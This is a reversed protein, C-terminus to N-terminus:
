TNYVTAVREERVDAPWSLRYSFAYTRDKALPALPQWYAVINDHIEEESPIEVLHVRGEGWAAHPEVWASPRRQYNAERDNYDFFSRGRQLLGFGVLNRVSFASVQLRRPNTLPRWLREGGAHLIALGDSDHVGERFDNIRSRDIGSFLFMSTLPAIGAHRIDARPYLNVDVEVVTPAG